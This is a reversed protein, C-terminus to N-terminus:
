QNLNNTNNPQEMIPPNVPMANVPAVTPQVVPNVNAQMPTSAVNMEISNMFNVCKTVFDNIKRVIFNEKMAKNGIVSIVFTFEAFTILYGVIGDCIEVIKSVPGLLYLNLKLTNIPETLYSNLLDILDNFSDVILNIGSVILDWAVTFLVVAATFTMVRIMINKINDTMECFLLMLVAVLLLTQWSVLMSVLLIIAAVGSQMKVKNM